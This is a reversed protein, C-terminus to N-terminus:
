RWEARRQWVSLWAGSSPFRESQGLMKLTAGASRRLFTGLMQIRLALGRQWRPFHLRIVRRQAGLLRVLKDEKVPESAAGVHVVTAAPTIRPQFGLKTARLSLDVDEGYMFFQRDFGGLRLWLTKPILQFCGSVVDVERETDRAWRGLSRPDFVVNRPFVASLFCAECIVSWLSPAGWCSTPNLSGDTRLTRGGIIGPSDISRAHAVIEGIANDLVQTDPNLLVIFEGRAQEAALNNAAGFGLNENLAHVLVEPYAERVAQASGDSSANDVLIVEFSLGETEKMVSALCELTLERTNYSVVIITVDLRDGM